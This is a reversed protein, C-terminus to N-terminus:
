PTMYKFNVIDNLRNTMFWSENFTFFYEASVTSTINPDAGNRLLVDVTSIHGAQSAMFLATRGDQSDTFMSTSLIM